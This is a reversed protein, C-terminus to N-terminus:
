RKLVLRLFLDFNTRIILLRTNEEPRTDRAILPKTIYLVATIEGDAYSM